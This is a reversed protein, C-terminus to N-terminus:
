RINRGSALGADGQWCCARSGGPLAPLESSALKNVVTGAIQLRWRESPIGGARSCRIMCSHRTFRVKWGLLLTRLRRCPNRALIASLDPRRIILRLRAFPRLDSLAHGELRNGSEDASQPIFGHGTRFFSDANGPQVRDLSSAIEQFGSASAFKRRGGQHQLGATARFIGELFPDPQADGAGSSYAACNDAIAGLPSQALRRMRNQRALSSWSPVVDKNAAFAGRDPLRKRCQDTVKFPTEGFHMAIPALSACRTMM